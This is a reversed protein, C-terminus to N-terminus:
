FLLARRLRLSLSPRVSAIGAHTGSNSEEAGISFVLRGACILTHVSAPPHSSSM